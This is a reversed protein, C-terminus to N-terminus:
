ADRQQARLARQARDVQESVLRILAPAASPHKALWSEGEAVLDVGILEALGTLKIPFAREIMNQAVESTREAWQSELAAYYQRVYPAMVEPTGSTFGFASARQVSNPVKGGTIREWAAAVQEADPMGAKAQAAKETGSATRDREEREADIEEASIRGAEALRAIVRWRMAPDMALGEPVRAGNLWGAIWDLQKETRAMAVFASTIQLQRDSGPETARALTELQDTVTAQLAERTAPASYVNAATDLESLLYRLVTGHDETELARLALAVFDRAPMEGDRCMDWASDLVLTRVLRDEFDNIHESAFALSDADLRVKAYAWDNDNILIVSPRPKGAFEPVQTVEGAVDLESHAVRVLKGRQPDLSYGGVALRHPRLSARGDSSQRIAFAAIAGDDSIELEPALTNIGAEELWVKSWAKLDRGSAAELEVLLDELTANGWKKKELYAAVGGVFAEWGVYAVLQQFVSAGKGYTIGDFNVMTDELDRIEAAIPHTSPLQDQAQAWVKESANFTVWAEKWRTAEFMAVHSMYEAFSENLWLDNWWKMTVLDGFWMHALEHEVTVARREVLAETPKSVFVYDDLITVCGPHEMAGMNYEPVFIQDYKRFPYPQKYANEYFAMGQKTIEIIEQADLHQALSRRCYVGMPIERGDTSTYSGTEGEYPGAICCTLYSSIKETPTFDWRAVPENERGAVPQPEPSPSVSFVRWYNPAIVSFTFHAKLDPQEFVSYMRRSDPVEFQSYLYVEGDAPDTARHLGEGGHSYTCTAAVTLTNHAQLAPLPIRAGDYSEIPLEAGNLEIRQISEAILDIWSSEGPQGCEFTVTTVSSFTVDSTTLDLTVAYQPNSILAARAETEIRTLNESGM